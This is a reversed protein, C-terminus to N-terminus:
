YERTRDHWFTQSFTQQIHCYKRCFKLRLEIAYIWTKTLNQETQKETKKENAVMITFLSTYHRCPGTQGVRNRTATETRWHHTNQVCRLTELKVIYHLFIIWSLYFVNLWIAAFKNQFRHVLNWWFRGLKTSSIVSFVETKKGSVSYLVIHHNTLKQRENLCQSFIAWDLVWTEVVIIM